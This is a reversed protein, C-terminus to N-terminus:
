QIKIFGEVYIDSYPNETQERNRREIVQYFDEILSGSFLPNLQSKHAKISEIKTEMLEATFYEKNDYQSVLPSDWASYYKYASVAPMNSLCSTIIDNCLSHTKHPDCVDGVTFICDFENGSILSLTYDIDIQEIYTRQKYFPSNGFIIRRKDTLGLIELARIAENQRILVDGGNAGSTQYIVTVHKKFKIMKAITAGMGIVDDDPHPSFILINNFKMFQESLNNLVKSFALSDICFEFNPHNFLLCVPLTAANNNYIANVCDYVINSKTDGTAMLIIKKSTLIESIGVTLATKFQVRNVFRTSNCLEVLRTISDANCGPENFAVHGNVGLGLFTIDIPTQDILQKYEECEKNADTTEGNLLHVNETLINTYTFFNNWMYYYYSNTDNTNIPYYEDLNFTITRSLDINREIIQQYLGCPTSGTPLMLTKAELSNNNLIYTFLEQKTTFVKFKM